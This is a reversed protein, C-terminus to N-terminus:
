LPVDRLEEHLRQSYRALSTNGFKMRGGALPKKHSSTLPPADYFYVRYLYFDSLPSSKKLKDIFRRTKDATLPLEESGLKRKLFGADILVAYNRCRM